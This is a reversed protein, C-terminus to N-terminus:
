LDCSIFKCKNYRSNDFFFHYCHQQPYPLFFVKSGWHSTYYMETAIVFITYVIINFISGSYFKARVDLDTITVSMSWQMKWHIYSFIRNAITPSWCFSGCSAWICLTLTHFKRDYISCRYYSGERRGLAWPNSYFFPCSSELLWLHHIVVYFCCRGSVTLCSGTHVWMLPSVQM